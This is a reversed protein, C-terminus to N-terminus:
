NAWWRQRESLAMGILILAMGMGSVPSIPEQLVLASAIITIVPIVYIYVSTKVPGLQYVAYNWTLYCLASAIVGLFLLNLLNPLEALRKIEPDFEFLPLFPLTFLLGYMYVTRTLAIASETAYIKKMVVSYVAWALAALISLLDGLPNFKFVISGNFSILIIGAMALTFGIFFNAALKEDLVIRSVLATFLPAVSILVGVNAALTYQLAINQFM